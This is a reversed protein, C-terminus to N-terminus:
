QPKLCEVATLCKMQGSLIVTFKDQAPDADNWRNRCGTKRISSKIAEGFKLGLCISNAFKYNPKFDITGTYIVGEGQDFGHINTLKISTETEVVDANVIRYQFDGSDSTYGIYESIKQSEGGASPTGGVNGYSIMSLFVTSFMLLKLQFM